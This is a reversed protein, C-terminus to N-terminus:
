RSTSPNRSVNPAEAPKVRDLTPVHERDCLEQRRVSRRVPQGYLAGIPPIQAHDWRDRQQAATM